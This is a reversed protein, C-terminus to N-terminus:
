PRRQALLWNGAAEPGLKSSDRTFEPVELGRRLGALFGPPGPRLPLGPARAVRPFDEFRPALWPLAGALTDIKRLVQIRATEEQQPM